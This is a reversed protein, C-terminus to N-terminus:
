FVPTGNKLQFYQSQFRLMEVSFQGALIGINLCISHPTYFSTGVVWIDMNM